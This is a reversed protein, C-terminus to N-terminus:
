WEWINFIKKIREISRDLYTLSEGL